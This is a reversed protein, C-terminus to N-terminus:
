PFNYKVMNRLLLWQHEVKQHVKIPDALTGTGCGKTVNVCCSDPVSKGDPKFHKWDASSNVGCCKLQGHLYVSDFNFLTHDGYLILGCIVRRCIVIGLVTDAISILSLLIAFTTVICYNEKWAGCCGFFATFLLGVGLVIILLLDISADPDHIKLTHNVVFQLM